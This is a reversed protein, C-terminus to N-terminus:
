LRVEVWRARENVEVYSGRLFDGRKTFETMQVYQPLSHYKAEWRANHSATLFSATGALLLSVFGVFFMELNTM